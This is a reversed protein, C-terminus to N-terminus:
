KRLMQQGLDMRQRVWDIDGHQALSALMCRQKQDM